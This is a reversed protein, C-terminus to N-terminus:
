LSGEDTSALFMFVEKLEADTLDADIGPYDEREEKDDVQVGYERYLQERTTTNSTGTRENYLKLLKYLACVSRPNGTSMAIVGNADVLHDRNM